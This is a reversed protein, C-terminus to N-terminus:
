HNSQIRRPACARRAGLHQRACPAIGPRRQGARDARPFVPGALIPAWFLHWGFPCVARCADDEHARPYGFYVLVGDGLLQAVHGDFATVAAAIAAHFRRVVNQLDEPDLRGSLQTSGVMDCFMVTLQRREAEHVHAAAAALSPSSGTDAPAPATLGALAKLLRKREGLTAVGLEKLDADDLDPLVDITIDQAAFAEAHREFGLRKLCASVDNLPLSVPRHIDPRPGRISSDM